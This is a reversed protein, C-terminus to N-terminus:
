PLSTPRRRDTAAVDGGLRAALAALAEPTDADALAARTAPDCPLVRSM